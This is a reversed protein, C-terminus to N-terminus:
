TPHRRCHRHPPRGRREAAFRWGRM